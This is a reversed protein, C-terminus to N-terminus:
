LFDQLCYYFLDSSRSSSGRWSSKTQSLLTSTTYQKCNEKWSSVNPTCTDSYSSGDNKTHVSCHGSILGVGLDYGCTTHKHNSSSECYTIRYNGRPSQANLYLNVWKNHRLQVPTANAFTTDAFANNYDNLVGDNEQLSKHWYDDESSYQVQYYLGDKAQIIAVGLQKTLENNYINDDASGINSSRQLDTYCNINKFSAGDLCFYTYYKSNIKNGIYYEKILEGYCNSDNCDNTTTMLTKVINSAVQQRNKFTILYENDSSLFDGDNHQFTIGGIIPATIKLKVRYDGKANNLAQFLIDINEIDQFVWYGGDYILLNVENGYIYPKSLYMKDNLRPAENLVLSYDLSFYKYTYTRTIAKFYNNTKEYEVNLLKVYIGDRFIFYKYMKKEDTEIFTLRQSLTKITYFDNNLTDRLYCTATDFIIGYLKMKEVDEYSGIVCYKQDESLWYQIRADAYENKTFKKYGSWEGFPALANVESGLAKTFLTLALSKISSTGVYSQTDVEGKQDIKKWEGDHYMYQSLTGDDNAVYSTDGSKSGSLDALESVSSVVNNNSNKTDGSESIKVWEGDKYVLTDYSGDVNPRIWVKNTDEPPTNGVTTTEDQSLEQMQKIFKYTKAEILINLGGSIPIMGISILNTSKFLRENNIDAFMNTIKLKNNNLALDITEKKEFNLFVKSDLQYFDKVKNMTIQFDGTELMYLQAYESVQEIQSIYNKIQNLKLLKISTTITDEALINIYVLLFSLLFVKKM